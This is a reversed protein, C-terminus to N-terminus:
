DRHGETLEQPDSALSTGRPSQNTRSLRREIWMTMYLSQQLVQHLLFRLSGLWGLQVGRVEIVASNWTSHSPHGVAGSDSVMNANRSCPQEPTTGILAPLIAWKVLMNRGSWSLFVVKRLRMTMPLHCSANFTNTNLQSVQQRRTDWSRHVDAQLIPTDDESPQM